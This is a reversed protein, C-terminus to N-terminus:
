YIANLINICRQAKLTGMRADVIGCLLTYVTLGAWVKSEWDAAGVLYSIKYTFGEIL